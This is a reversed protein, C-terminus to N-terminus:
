HGHGHEGHAHGHQIEEATAPRVALVEIDFRLDMGAFPHNADVIYYAGTVDIVTAPAQEKGLAVTQGIQLETKENAPGREIKVVRGEERPGFAHDSGVDVSTKQGAKLGLVATELDPLIQGAGEMFTLAEGPRSDEMISGSADLIQYHITFVRPAM